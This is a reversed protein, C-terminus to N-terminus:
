ELTLEIGNLIPTTTPGANVPSRSVFEAVLPKDGELHVGHFEKVVPHLAGGAEAAPDFGQLVTNGQLKVDFVRRDGHDNDPDCFHLRVTFTAAEKRWPNLTLRQIGRCGSAAVWNLKGDGQVVSVHRCYYGPEEYEVQAGAFNNLWLTGDEARRFGPAGLNLAVHRVDKDDSLPFETWVEVDPM